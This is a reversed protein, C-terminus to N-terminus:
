LGVAVAALQLQGVPRAVLQSLGDVESHAPLPAGVAHTATSEVVATASAIM